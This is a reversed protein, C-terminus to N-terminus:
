LKYAEIKKIRNKKNFYLIDIVNISEKDLKVIIQNCTIKKKEIIFTNIIKIDIKKFKKFIEKNFNLVKIKGIILNEWDHLKINKDMIKNLNELNKKKFFKFYNKTLEILNVRM